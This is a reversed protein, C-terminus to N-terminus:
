SSTAGSTGAYLASLNTGTTEIRLPIYIFDITKVPQIAIDIWLENNDVRDPTNNSSDCVVIFDYLANLTVLNSLFREMVTQASNQTHQVNPEFLFPQAIINLNYRLYNVLRAVNIRNEADVVASQTKDGMIVLGRSPMYAIANISNQYLTDRQGANLIVTTFLGSAPDIYGVSTANNVLGRTYGAPTYWPYSVSDSYAITSLAVTSPPVVIASGDINTTMAWPYWIGLYQPSVGSVLLGADGTAAVNAVNTAWNQISTGSPALRAPTDGVVFAVDKKSENLALLSNMVEPYGPASILNFYFSEALLSENGNVVAILSEVIINRQAKRGMYPINDLSGSVTVWRGAFPVPPFSATGITYTINTYNVNGYLGSFQTSQWQKVNQTSFRTNFLLLGTPYLLADPADPDCFSSLVLSGISQDGFESGDVNWRADAFIIGFPSINDGNNILTWTKTAVTYRYIQPYNELTALSTNIWIDNDVLPTNDSQFSPASADLIPGGPDTQPYYVKYGQWEQGTSVMIDVQFDNNFWYTGDAAVTTPSTSQAQYVLPSWQTSGDQNIASLIMPTFGALPLNTIADNAGPCQIYITSNVQLAGATIGAAAAANNAYIPATVNTWAGTTANYVQVVISAGNNYPNTIIWIDYNNPSSPLNYTPGYTVVNPNNGSSTVTSLKWVHSNLQAWVPISAVPHTAVNYYSTKLQFVENDNYIINIAYNGDTGINPMPVLEPAAINNSVIFGCDVLVQQTSGSLDLAGVQLVDVIMLYAEGALGIAYAANVTAGLNQFATNILDVVGPTFVGGSTTGLLTANSPLSVAHGNIHLSGGTTIFATTPDNSPTSIGILRYALNSDNTLIIPTQYVWATGNYQQIGWTSTITNLWYTGGIPPGVPPSIQPFLQSYDLASRVVYATNAIGLYQYAAHLGYENLEYGDQPTGESTYFYPNGFTQILERQSTILDLTNANAPLTGAAITTSAPQTKYEHTGIIILPVTGQGSTAYFSEDTVEVDVGPSLLPYAM